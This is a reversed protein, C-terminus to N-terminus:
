PRQGIKLPQKDQQQAKPTRQTNQMKIQLGIHLKWTNEEIGNTTKENEQYYGKICM